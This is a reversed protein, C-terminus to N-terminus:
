KEALSGRRYFAERLSLNIDRGRNHSLDGIEVPAFTLAAEQLPDKIIERKGFDPVQELVQQVNEILVM